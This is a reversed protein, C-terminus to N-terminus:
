DTIDDSKTMQELGRVLEEGVGEDIERKV